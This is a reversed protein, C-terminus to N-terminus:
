LDEIYKKLIELADSDAKGDVLYDSIAKKKELLEAVKEDITNLAILNYIFVPKKSGIRHIRDCAQDFVGFTWPTDLFIMYSARNLTHGTGMKEWTCLMIYHNNDEQFEEKYKDIDVDKTDGICILPNLEQIQKALELIPEKFTSMIVVKEKQSVLQHILDVCREIKSSKISSSTLISPLVSAQRLRTTLALVNNTKLEIKDCEEKVGNVVDNYFQQHLDNLEVYEKIITKTPLDLLDKTRRLSCSDIEDKLMNLNKYGVIQNGGFGGYVCYQSQFNYFSSKENGTWYLPIYSELPNNLLLTGTAAIKYESDLKVFNKAQQSNIDKVAHAEDIVIMEINLKKLEELIPSFIEYKPQGKKPGKKYEGVQVKKDRLSEINIIIFFEDIGKKIEEVREEISADYSFIKLKPLFKKGIIRCDLNSHTYIEKEWNTRLSAVGCVVLCHKIGKQVKLEEALNIITKTKGLGPADLLLWKKHNEQLGFEIGELQHKFCKTKYNLTPKLSNLANEDQRLMLNIDDLYTLNDVLSALSTLPFEWEKTHSNYNYNPERKIAEIINKNYDFSLFLSTIGSMKVPTSEKITIM